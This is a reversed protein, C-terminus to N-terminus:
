ICITQIEFHTDNIDNNLHQARSPCADTACLLLLLLVEVEPMALRRM